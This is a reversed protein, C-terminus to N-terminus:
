GEDKEGETTGMGCKGGDNREMKGGKMRGDGRVEM